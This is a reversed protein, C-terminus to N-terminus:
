FYMQYRKRFDEVSGAAVPVAGEQLVPANGLKSVLDGVRESWKDSLCHSLVSHCTHFQLLHHSIHGCFAKSAKIRSALGPLLVLSLLFCCHCTWVMVVDKLIWEAM